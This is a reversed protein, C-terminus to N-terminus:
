LNPSNRGYYINRYDGGNSLNVYWSGSATRATLDTLGDGDLDQVVAQPESWGATANWRARLEYFSTGDQRSVRHYWYATPLVFAAVEETDPNRDIDYEGEFFRLPEEGWEEPPKTGFYLNEFGKSLNVYWNGSSTRATLESLGDRDLDEVAQLESWGATPSWRTRLEYYRTGDARTVRHYWYGVPRVFVAEEETTSDHDINFIGSVFVLPEPGWEEPPKMGFYLNEYDGGDTLCVHWNGSATMGAIDDRGDGDLDAVVQLGTWGADPHWRTIFQDSSTGDPNVIRYYWDGTSPNYYAIESTGPNGDLESENGVIVMDTPLCVEEEGVSVCHTSNNWIISQYADPEEWPLAWGSRSLILDPRRDGDLNGVEVSYAEEDGIIDLQVTFNGDGQGLLVSGTRRQVVILDVIGDSNMDAVALDKPWKIAPNTETPAIVRPDAFVENGLNTFIVVKHVEPSYHSHATAIDIDGDQDYDALALDKPLYGIDVFEDRRFSGSGEGGNNYFIWLGKESEPHDLHDFGTAVIDLYGDGNLDAVEARVCPADYVGEVEFTGDGTGKLVALQKSGYDVVLVDLYEDGLFDEVIIVPKPGANDYEALGASVSEKLEFQLVNGEGVGKNLYVSIAPRFAYVFIVDNDGDNDVDGYAANHAGATVELDVPTLGDVSRKVLDRGGPNEFYWSSYFGVSLVDQDGDGDWDAVLPARVDDDVEYQYIPESLLVEDPGAQAQVSATFLFVSVFLVILPFPKGM